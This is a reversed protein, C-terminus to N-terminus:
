DVRWGAAELATIDAVPAADVKDRIAQTDCINTEDIFRIGDEGCDVLVGFRPFHGPEVGRSNKIPLCPSLPWDSAHEACWTLSPITPRATM